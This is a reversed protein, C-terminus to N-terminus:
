LWAYEWTRLLGVRHHTPMGPMTFASTYSGGTDLDMWCTLIIWENLVPHQVKAMEELDESGYSKAEDDIRDDDVVPGLVDTWESVFRAFADLFEKQRPSEAM